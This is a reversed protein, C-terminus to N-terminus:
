DMKKVWTSPLTTRYKKAGAAATGGSINASIKLERIEM